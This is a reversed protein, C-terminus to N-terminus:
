GDHTERQLHAGGAMARGSVTNGAMLLAGIVLLKALSRGPGTVVCLPLVLPPAAVSLTTMARAVRATPPVAALEDALLRAYVLTGAPGLVSLVLGLDIYAPRAYGQALLLMVLCVLLTALNQAVVRRRVPGTAAGWLAPGVGLVLLTAAAVLWGNM